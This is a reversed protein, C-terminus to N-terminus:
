EAPEKVPYVGIAAGKLIEKVDAPLNSGEGACWQLYSREIKKLPYPSNRGYKGFTVCAEGEHWIIMGKRDIAGPRKPFCYESLDKVTRPLDPFRLLQGRLVIETAAVDKGADHAGELTSGPPLPEGNPGGFECYANTLSHPLKQRYISYSDIIYGTWEWAVEARRMEHRLFNVDFETNYGGFDVNLIKPALAPAVRAFPPADAVDADTIGHSGRNTIPIGPNILSVWGIPERAMYHVTIGIQIIRDKEPDLGTTEFDLIALPRELRLLTALNLM